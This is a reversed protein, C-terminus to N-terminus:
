GGMEPLEDEAERRAARGKVMEAEIWPLFEAVAVEPVGLARAVTFAATYDWGVVHGFDSRVQGGIRQM